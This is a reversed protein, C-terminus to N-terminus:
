LAAGERDQSPGDAAAHIGEDDWDHQGIEDTFGEDDEAAEVENGHRDGLEDVVLGGAAGDLFDIEEKGRVADDDLRVHALVVAADLVGSTAKNNGLM